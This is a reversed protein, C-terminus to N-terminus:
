VNAEQHSGTEGFYEKQTRKFGFTTATLHILTNAPLVEHHTKVPFSLYLKLFQSCWNDNDLNVIQVTLKRFYM